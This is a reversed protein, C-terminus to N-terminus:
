QESGRARLYWDPVDDEPLGMIQSIQRLCEPEARAVQAEVEALFRAYQVSAAPASGTDQWEFVTHELGYHRHLIRLTAAMTIEESDRDSCAFFSFEVVVRGAPDPSTLLIGRMQSWGPMYQAAILNSAHAPEQQGPHPRLFTHMVMNELQDYVNSNLEHIASDAEEFRRDRQEKVEDVQLYPSALSRVRERLEDVNAAPRQEPPQALCARLEKAVEDMSPRREPRFQTCRMILSDLESVWPYTIWGRLSYPAGARYEGPQPWNAGVLLAWLTKALAWVDAPGDDARDAGELMEPAHFHMLGLRTGPATLVEKGLFEVLGFDGLEWKGDRQFLNDPKIDRHGISEAALRALTEAYTAMADIVTELSAHEGLAARLPTAYPMVFWSFDGAETALHSDVLPLVGGGPHETLFTVEAAFRSRFYASNSKLTKVAYRSSDGATRVEWVIGNGGSGLRKRGVLTWRGLVAGDRPQWQGRGSAM